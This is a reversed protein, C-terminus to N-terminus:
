WPNSIAEPLEVLENHVQDLRCPNTPDAPKRGILLDEPLHHIERAPEEARLPRRQLNITRDQSLQLLIRTEIAMRAEPLFPDHIVENGPGAILDVKPVVEDQRM